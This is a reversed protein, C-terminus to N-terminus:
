IAIPYIYSTNDPEIVISFFDGSELTVAKDLSMVHWGAFDYTETKQSLIEVSEIDSGPATKGYKRVSVTMKTGNDTTYFGAEKLVEGDNIARFVSAAKASTTGNGWSACWGLEDHGYTILSSDASEVVFVTGDRFFQEYSVWFYGGLETNPWDDGWSNRILWAGPKEPRISQSNFNEVPFEDDWGVIVVIHNIVNAPNDRSVLSKENVSYFYAGTEENFFRRDYAMNYIVSAAGKTMVMNKVRNRHAETSFLLNGDSDFRTVMFSAEILRLSSPYVDPSKAINKALTEINAVNTFDSYKLGDKEQIPGWCGAYPLEVRKFGDRCFGLLNGM